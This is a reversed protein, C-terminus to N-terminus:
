QLHMKKKAQTREEWFLCCCKRRQKSCEKSHWRMYWPINEIWGDCSCCMKLNHWLNLRVTGMLVMPVQQPASISSQRFPNKIQKGTEHWDAQRLMTASWFHAHLSAACVNGSVMGQVTAEVLAIKAMDLGIFVMKKERPWKQLFFICLGLSQSPISLGISTSCIYWMQKFGVRPEM